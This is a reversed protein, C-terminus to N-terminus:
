RAVQLYQLVSPPGWKGLAIAWFIAAGCLTNVIPFFKYIKLVGDEDDSNFSLYMLVLYIIGLAASLRGLVRFSLLVAAVYLITCFVLTGYFGLLTAVTQLNNQRDASIDPVASYAHMAIAWCWAAIILVWNPNTGGVLFYAFIGPLIYLVNFASDLIPKTKARIPPASYFASFFWFAALALAAYINLQTSLLLFPVNFFTV